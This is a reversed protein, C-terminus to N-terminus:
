PLNLDTDEALDLVQNLTPLDATTPKVANNGFLPDVVIQVQEGDAQTLEIAYGNGSAPDGSLEFSGHGARRTEVCLGFVNCPALLGHSGASAVAIQIMGEGSEGEAKWGLKIGLSISGGADGGGQESDTDYNLHRHSPDLHTGALAYLDDRWPKTDSSDISAGDPETIATEPSLTLPDEPAPPVSTSGETPVSSPQGAIRAGNGSSAPSDGVLQNAAITVGALVAVTALSGGLLVRRRRVLDRRGRAVDDEVVVPSDHREVASRLRERLQDEDM